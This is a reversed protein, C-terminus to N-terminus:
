FEECGHERLFQKATGGSLENLIASLRTTANRGAGNALRRYFQYVNKVNRLYLDEEVVAQAM